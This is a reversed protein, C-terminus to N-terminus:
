QYTDYAILINKFPVSPEYGFGLVYKNIKTREGAIFSALLQHLYNSAAQMNQRAGGALRQNATM